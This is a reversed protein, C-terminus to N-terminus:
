ARLRAAIRGAADIYGDLDPEHTRSQLLVTTAGADVVERVAREIDGDSGTAAVRREGELHWADFEAEM